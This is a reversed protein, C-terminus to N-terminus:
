ALRAEVVSLTAPAPLPLLREVALGAAGCLDRLESASRERGPTLALMNMDLFKNPDPDNGPAIVADIVLLRAAPTMAARCRRLIELARADDWDHLIRKLVYVDGGAPVHQFFDGGEARWRGAFRPERLAEPAAVVQPQDYLLASTGPHTDLVAALLGGHGGAVDVVLRAGGFPWAAAIVPNEIQSLRAMSRDFIANVEPHEALHEFVPKGHAREFPNPGGRLADPLHEYSRWLLDHWPQRLRERVSGPVDARLAEARPSLHYRGAEDERFFGYSAVFRLVRHLRGADLDLAAALAAPTAPGSALRDALGVEALSTLLRLLMTHANLQQLLGVVDNPAVPQRTDQQM